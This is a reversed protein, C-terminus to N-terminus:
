TQMDGETRKSDNDLQPAVRPATNRPEDDALVRMAPTTLDEYEGTNVARIFLMLFTLGLLLSVFLLLIIISM